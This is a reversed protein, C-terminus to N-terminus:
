GPWFFAASESRGRQPVFALVPEFGILAQQVAESSPRRASRGEQARSRPCRPDRFRRASLQPKLAADYDILARTVGHRVAGAQGSEGGGHVNVKVDFAEGNNTLVLPQARDHDLDPPRFVARRRRQRRDQGHGEQHLCTGGVVQSPRHRLELEGIMTREKSKWAKPQQAAHPHSPGAYVKLKKVMAYGLPGKPLM